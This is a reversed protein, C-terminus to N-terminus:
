DNNEDLQLSWVIDRLTAGEAATNYTLAFGIARDSLVVVHQEQIGTITRAGSTAEIQAIQFTFM